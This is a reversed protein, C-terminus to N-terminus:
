QSHLHGSDLFTKTQSIRAFTKPPPPVERAGYGYGGIAETRKHGTQGVRHKCFFTDRPCKYCHRTTGANTHGIEYLFRPTDEQFLPPLYHPDSARGASSDRRDAKPSSTRSATRSASTGRETQSGDSHMWKNMWRTERQVVESHQRSRPTNTFETRKWADHSGFGLKRDGLPQSEIYRTRDSYPDLKYDYKTFIGDTKQCQFQKGVYRPPVYVPDLTSNAKRQQYPTGVGIFGTDTGSHYRKTSYM